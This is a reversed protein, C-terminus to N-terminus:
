QLPRSGLVARVLRSKSARVHLGSTYAMYAALVMCVAAFILLFPTRSPGDDSIEVSPSVTAEEVATGGQFGAHNVSARISLITEGEGPRIVLTALGREDTSMPLPETLLGASEWVVEAFAVPEGEATVIATIDADTGATLVPVDLAIELEQREVQFALSAGEVGPAAAALTV